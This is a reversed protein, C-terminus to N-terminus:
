LAQTCVYMGGYQVPTADNTALNNALTSRQFNAFNVRKVRTGDLEDLERCCSASPLVTCLQECSLAVANDGGTLVKTPVFCVNCHSLFLGLGVHGLYLHTWPKYPSWQGPCHHCSLVFDSWWKRQQCQCPKHCPRCQTHTHQWAALAAFCFSLSALASIALALFALFTNCQM